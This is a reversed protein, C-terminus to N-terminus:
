AMNHTRCAFHRATRDSCSRCTLWERIAQVDALGTRDYVLVKIKGRRRGYFVFVHGSLADQDFMPRVLMSLSDISKRMDIPEAAIYVKVATSLMMMAGGCRHSRDDSAAFDLVYVPLRLRIGDGLILEPVDCASGNGTASIAHDAIGVQMFGAIPQAAAITASTNHQIDDGREAHRALALYRNMSSRSIGSREIYAQITLGSARYEGV